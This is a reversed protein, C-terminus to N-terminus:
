SYGVLYGVGMKARKPSRNPLEPLSGDLSVRMVLGLTTGPRDLGPVAEVIANAPIGRDIKSAIWAARDRSLYGVRTGSATFIAVAQPDHRNTPERVLDLPDGPRCEELELQRSSGDENDYWCGVAALSFDSTGM